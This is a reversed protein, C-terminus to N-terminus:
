MNSTRNRSEVWHLCSIGIELSRYVGMALCLDEGIWSIHGYVAVYIATHVLM